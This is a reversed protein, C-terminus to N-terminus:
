FSVVAVCVPDADQGAGAVSLVHVRLSAAAAGGTDHIGVTQAGTVAQAAAGIAYNAGDMGHSWTLTYDGAANDTVSTTRFGARLSAPVANGDINAWATILSRPSAVPRAIPGLLRRPVM